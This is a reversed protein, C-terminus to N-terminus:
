PYQILRIIVNGEAIYNLHVNIRRPNARNITTPRCFQNQVHFVMELLM